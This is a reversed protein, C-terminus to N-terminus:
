KVILKNPECVINVAEFNNLREVVQDLSENREWVFHLRLQRAEELQFEVAVGYYGAMEILMKDLPINDFIHPEVSTTDAEAKQSNLASPKSNTERVTTVVSQQPKQYQRVFHIAAFAIGSIMIVGIISAAARSLRKARCLVQLWRPSLHVGAHPHSDNFEQWASEVDPIQDLDDIMAEIQEESYKEPHEQMDLFMQKKKDPTQM